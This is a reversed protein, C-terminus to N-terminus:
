LRSISLHAFVQLRLCVTALGNRLSRRTHTIFPLFCLLLIFLFSCFPIASCSSIHMLRRHCFQTLPCRHGKGADFEAYEFTCRAGPVSFTKLTYRYFDYPTYQSNKLFKGSLGYFMHIERNIYMYSMHGCSYTNTPRHMNNHICIQKPIRM